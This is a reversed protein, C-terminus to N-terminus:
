GASQTQAVPRVADAEAEHSVAPGRVTRALFLGLGALVGFLAVLGITEGLSRERVPMVVAAPAPSGTGGPALVRLDATAIEEGVARLQYAGPALNTPLRLEVTFGGEADTKAPNFDIDVGGPGILHLEVTRNAGLGAGKVTIVDGPLPTEPQVVVSEGHALSLRASVALAGLVLVMALLTRRNM